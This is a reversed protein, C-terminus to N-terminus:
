YEGCRSATVQLFQLINTADKCGFESFIKYLCSRLQAIATCYIWLYWGKKKFFSDEKWFSKKKKKHWPRKVIYTGYIPFNPNKEYTKKIMHNMYRDQSNFLKHRTHFKLRKCNICFSDVLSGLKSILCLTKCSIAM